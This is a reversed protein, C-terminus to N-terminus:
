TFGSRYVRQTKTTTSGHTNSRQQLRVNASTPRHRQGRLISRENSRSRQTCSPCPLGYRSVYGKADPRHIAAGTRFVISRVHNAKSARRGKNAKSARRSQIAPFPLASWVSLCLRECRPPSHGRRHSFVHIECPIGELSKLMHTCLHTPCSLTSWISLCLRRCRPPTEGGRHPYGHMEFPKGKQQPQLAPCPHAPCVMGLSM